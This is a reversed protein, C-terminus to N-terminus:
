QLHVQGLSGYPVKLGNPLGIYIGHGRVDCLFQPGRQMARSMAKKAKLDLCQGFLVRSGNPPGIYIGRGEIDNVLFQPEGGTEM